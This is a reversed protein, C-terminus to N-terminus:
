SKDETSGRGGQAVSTGLIICAQYESFGADVLTVFMERMALAAEQLETM